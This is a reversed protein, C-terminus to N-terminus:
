EPIIEFDDLLDPRCHGKNISNQVMEPDITGSDLGHKFEEMWIKECDHGEKIWPGISTWSFLILKTKDPDTDEGRDPQLNYWHPLEGGGEYVPSKPQSWMIDSYAKVDNKAIQVLEAFDWRCKKCDMIMVSTEFRNYGAHRRLYSHEGLDYNWLEQIDCLCILPSDLYIAKGKYDCLQPIAWRYFSFNTFMQEELGIDLDKLDTFDINRFSIDSSTARRLISHKLVACPVDYIEETGIFIRIM